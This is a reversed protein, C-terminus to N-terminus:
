KIDKVCRFGIHDAGSSPEAKGRTGVMYRTCYQDTCSFSGGRHVRKKIGEEAPDYSDSPGKPNNVVGQKHLTAYYDPRYWDSCWEWVNGSMDYLGYSNSPYQKVPAANLFGDAATNQNPFKGQFTNAKWEKVNQMQNGWTYLWGTNGGRAAFEWEAETPLRKGAWKAYTTADDWAIHVVPYNEKGQINSEVGTPHKWNAGKVYTWWQFYNDLQVDQAPPTFVVSGAVLNESPATPFEAQTPKREAITIYNTAKVFASFQANTVETADMFFPNVYVKHIPRADDMTEKGGSNSMGTPNVGGMSFEGGTILVMGSPTNVKENLINPVTLQFDKGGSNMYTISDPVSLGNSCMVNSNNVQSVTEKSENKCHIFLFCSLGAVFFYQKLYSHHNM